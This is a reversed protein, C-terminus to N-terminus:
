IVYRRFTLAYFLVADGFLFGTLYPSKPDVMARMGAIQATLQAYRKEDGVARTAALGLVSAAAGVGLLIPGSEQDAGRESGAPWEAFGALPPQERWFSEAYRAYLAQARELDLDALLAIQWSLACGRPVDNPKIRSYPLRTKADTAEREIWDLHRTVLERTGERDWLALSVLVPLTDFPWTKGPYSELAAGKELAGRFRRSLREHLEAWRKGGARGYLALMLNLHGLYVAYHEAGKMTEFDVGTRHKVVPMALEILTELRQATAARREEHGEALHAYAYAPLSYPFLDGEAMDYRDAEVLAQYRKPDRLREDFDKELRAAIEVDPTALLLLLM